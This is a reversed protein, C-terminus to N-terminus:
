NSKIIDPYWKKDVIGRRTNMRVGDLEDIYEIIELTFSHDQGTFNVNNGRIDIIKISLESLKDISNMFIMPSSIFKHQCNIYIKSFYQNQSLVSSAEEINIFNNICLYYYDDLYLKPYSYPRQGPLANILTDVYIDNGANDMEYASKFGLIKWLSCADACDQFKLHFSYNAETMSFKIIGSNKNYVYNFEHTSTISLNACIAILLDTIDTYRGAPIIVTLYYTDNGFDVKIGNYRLDLLMVNNDENINFIDTPMEVSLLRISKVNIYTKPLQLVYESPSQYKYGKKAISGNYLYYYPAIIDGTDELNLLAPTITEPLGTLPSERVYFGFKNRPYISYDYIQRNASNISIVTKKEIVNRQAPVCVDEDCYSNTNAIDLSDKDIEINIDGAIVARQLLDNAYQEDM